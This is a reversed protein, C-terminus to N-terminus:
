SKSHPRITAELRKSTQDCDYYLKTLAARKDTISANTDTIKDIANLLEPSTGVIEPKLERSIGKLKHRKAYEYWSPTSVGALLPYDKGYKEVMYKKAAPPNTQKIQEDLEKRLEEPLKELAGRNKQKKEEAASIEKKPEEPQTSQEDTM